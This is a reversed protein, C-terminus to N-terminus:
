PALRLADFFTSTAAAAPPRDAYVAAQMAYAAQGPRGATAFWAAQLHVPAHGADPSRGEATIRRSQPLALGGSPLYAAGAPADPGPPIGIHALTAERWSGLMAGLESPADIEVWGLVFLAGDAKCGLLHMQVPKGTLTVTREGADPKCPLLASLPAPGDRVERWNLAPTCAGTFGSAALCVAVAKVARSASAMPARMAYISSSKM